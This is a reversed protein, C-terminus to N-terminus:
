RVIWGTFETPLQQADPLRQDVITQLVPRAPEWQDRPVGWLWRVAVPMRRQVLWIWESRASTKWAEWGTVVTVPPSSPKTASVWAALQMFTNPTWVATDAWALDRRSCQVRQTYARGNWLWAWQRSLQAM